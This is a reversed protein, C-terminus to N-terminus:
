LGIALETLTYVLSKPAKQYYKTVFTETENDTQLASFEIMACSVLWCM